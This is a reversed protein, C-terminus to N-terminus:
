CHKVPSKITQRRFIQRLILIYQILDQKSIIDCKKGTTTFRFSRFILKLAHNCRDNKTCFHTRACKFPVVRHTNVTKSVHHIVQFYM